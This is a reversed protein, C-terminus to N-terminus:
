LGQRKVKNIIYLCIDFERALMIRSAKSIHNLCNKGVPIHCIGEFILEKRALGILRVNFNM